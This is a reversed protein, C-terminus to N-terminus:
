KNRAGTHLMLITKGLIADEKLPGWVRCDLSPDRNDGLLFYEDSKLRIPAFNRHEGAGPTFAVWHGDEDYVTNGIRHSAPVWSFNTGSLPRLPLPRGNVFVNNERIEISEGPLGLIRKFIPIPLDPVRVLVMDGRRPRSVQFLKVGTYPLKIWYAAQNVLVKDGLLLTPADSVGSLSYARLYAPLVFIVAALLSLLILRRKGLKPMCPITNSQPYEHVAGASSQQGKGILATKNMIWALLSRKQRSFTLIGHVSEDIWTFINVRM